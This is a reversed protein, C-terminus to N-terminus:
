LRPEHKFIPKWSKNKNLKARKEIKQLFQNVLEATTKYKEIM